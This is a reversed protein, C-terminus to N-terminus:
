AMVGQEFAIERGDTAEVGANGVEVQEYPLKILNDALSSKEKCQPCDFTQKHNHNEIMALFEVRPQRKASRHLHIAKEVSWRSTLPIKEQCHPCVMSWREQELLFERVIRQRPMGREVKSYMDAAAEEPVYCGVPM